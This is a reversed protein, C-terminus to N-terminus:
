LCQASQQLPIAPTGLTGEDCSRSPAPTSILSLSFIAFLPKLAVERGMLRISSVQIPQYDTIILATNELLLRQNPQPHRMRQSTM